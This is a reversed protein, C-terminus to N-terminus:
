RKHETQGKEEAGDKEHAGRGAVEDDTYAKAFVAFPQPGAKGEREAEITFPGYPLDEPLRVVVSFRGDKDANVAQKLFAGERITLMIQEGKSFGRGSVALRNDEGLITTGGPVGSSALFLEAYDGPAPANTDRALVGSPEVTPAIPPKRDWPLDEAKPCGTAAKLYWLGHGYSSIYVGGDPRFHFGPGSTATICGGNEFLPM